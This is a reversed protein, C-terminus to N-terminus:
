GNHGRIILAAIYDVAEELVEQVVRDRVEGVAPAVRKLDEIAGRIASNLGFQGLMIHVLEHVITAELDNWWKDGGWDINRNIQVLVKREGQRASVSAMAPEGNHATPMKEKPAVEVKVSWDSGIVALGYKQIVRRVKNALVSDKM